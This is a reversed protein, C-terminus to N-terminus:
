GDGESEGWVCLVGARARTHEYTTYANFVLVCAKISVYVCAVAYVVRM